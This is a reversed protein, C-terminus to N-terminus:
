TWKLLFMTWQQDTFEFTVHSSKSRYMRTMGFYKPATLFLGEYGHDHWSEQMDDPLHNLIVHNVMRWRAMEAHNDETVKASSVIM